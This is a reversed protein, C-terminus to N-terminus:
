FFVTWDASFAPTSFDTLFGVQTDVLAHDIWVRLPMSLTWQGWAPMRFGVRPGLSLMINEGLLEPRVAQNWSLFGGVVLHGNGVAFVRSSNLSGILYDHSRDFSLFLSVAARFDWPVTATPLVGTSLSFQWYITGQPYFPLLGLGLRGYIGGPTAHYRAIEAGLNRFEGSLGTQMEVGSAGVGLFDRQAARVRLEVVRLDAVAQVQTAFADAYNYTGLGIQHRYDETPTPEPPTAFQEFYWIRRVSAESGSAWCVLLIAM